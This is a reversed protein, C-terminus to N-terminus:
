EIGKNEASVTATASGEQLLEGYNNRSETDAMIARLDDELVHAYRATTSIDTHGLLKQAAKLNGSARIVRTASTHRLDHFRFDTIGAATLAASWRRKWGEASFPYRIGKRRAPRDGRAPAPRECKYTFVFPCGDLQPRGMIIEIMRATLPFTHWVDGKTHVRARAAELDVDSWRLGIVAGRRQGSLIAFEVVAALDDGLHEFLKRQEAGSLERIREKPETLKLDVWKIAHETGPAPVDLGAAMAHKFVRQCLSLERNVSAHSVKDRRKAVFARMDALKIDALFKNPGIMSCLNELQYDTTSSNAEHQGKDNWYSKCAADLTVAPRSDDGLAVRRKLNSEFTEADRKKTCGTSGHFRQGGRKFDYQWYPSRPDKRLSM